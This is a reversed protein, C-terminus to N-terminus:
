EALSRVFAAPTTITIARFGDLCLLDDDGSIVSTANGAIALELWKDDKPDHCVAVRETPVIHLSEQILAALFRDREDSLLYRDFKPRLFVDILEEL